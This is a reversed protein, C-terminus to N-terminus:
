KQSIPLKTKIYDLCHELVPDGGKMYEDAIYPIHVDPKIIGNEQRSYEDMEMVSTVIISNKFNSIIIEGYRLANHALPEGVITGLNNYQMINAFTSAMSATHKSVLIYYNMEGAYRSDDLPCNRVIYDEPTNCVQGIQDESFGYDLTQKSVKIRSDKLYKISDQNSFLSILEDFRDGSGGPNRRVDIVINKYSKAQVKKIFKSLRKIMYKNNDFNHIGFYGTQHEDFMREPYYEDKFYYKNMPLGEIRIDHIEGKREFKIEYIPAFCLHNQAQTFRSDLFRHHYTYKGIEEASRGNISIMRDGKHLESNLTKDVLLTDGVCLLSFPWVLIDKNRLKVGEKLRIQPYILFHPDGYTLTDYAKRYQYLFETECISDQPFTKAVETILSDFSAESISNFPNPHYEKISEKSKM